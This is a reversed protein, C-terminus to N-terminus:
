VGGAVGREVGVVGVGGSVADSGCLKRMNDNDGTRAMVVEPGQALPAGGGAVSGHVCCSRRSLAGGRSIVGRRHLMHWKGTGHQLLPHPEKEWEKHGHRRWTSSSRSVPMCAHMKASQLKARIEVLLVTLSRDM